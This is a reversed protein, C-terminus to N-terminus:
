MRVQRLGLMMCISFLGELMGNHFGGKAMHNDGAVSLAEAISDRWLIIAGHPTITNMFSIVEGDVETDCCFYRSRPLAEVYEAPKLEGRLGRWSGVVAARILRARLDDSAVFKAPGPEASCTCTRSTYPPNKEALYM